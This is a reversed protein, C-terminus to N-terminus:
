APAESEIIQDLLACLRRCQTEQSYEAIKGWNPSLVGLAIHGMAQDLEVPDSALYGRGTGALVGGIDSDRCALALIPARFPLYEFLKGTIVAKPLPTYHGLDSFIILADAEMEEKHITEAPAPTLLDIMASVNKKEAYRRIEANAELPGLSRIRLIIERERNRALGDIMMRVAPLRHAHFRGAYYFIKTHKRSPTPLPYGGTHRGDFGHYIIEVPRGILSELCVALHPSCTTVLRAGKVLFKELKRDLAKIWASSSHNWHSLPDQYAAVWPRRIKKALIKALWFSSAPYCIGMILHPHIREIEAFHRLAERGWSFIFRDLSVIELGLKRYISYPLRLWKPIGRNGEAAVFQKGSDCNLGFRLINKEPFSVPLDGESRTTLVFPEWGYKPMFSLLDRAQKAAIINVPPFYYSAVLIRRMAFGM